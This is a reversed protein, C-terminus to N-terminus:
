NFLFVLNTCVRMAFVDRTFYSAVNDVLYKTYESFIDIHQLSVQKHCNKDRLKQWGINQIKVLM